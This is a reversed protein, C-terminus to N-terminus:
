KRRLQCRIQEKAESWKTIIKWQGKAIMLDQNTAEQIRLQEIIFDLQMM